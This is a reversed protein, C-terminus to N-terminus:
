KILKKKFISQIEEKSNKETVGAINMNRAIKLLTEKEYRVLQKGDIKVGGGPSLSFKYNKGKFKSINNNTIGFLTRIHSPINIGHKNYAEVVLKKSTGPLIKYWKPKGQKNPRVYHGSKSQNNFGSPKGKSPSKPKVALIQNNTIGLVSKVHNPIAVKANMYARIVKTRVLSKNTPIEYFRPKGNPGPRVYSGNRRANWNPALNYRSEIMAKRRNEATVKGAPANRKNKFVSIGSTHVAKILKKFAKPGDAPDICSAVITGNEFINLKVQPDKFTVGVKKKFGKASPAVPAPVLGFQWAPNKVTSEKELFEIDGANVLMNSKNQIYSYIDKVDILQNCYFRSLKTTKSANKILISFKGKGPKGPEEPFYEKALIRALREWPGNTSILVKGTKYVLVSATQEPDLMVINIKVYAVTSDIKGVPATSVTERFYPRGGIHQHGSVEVVTYKSTSPLKALDALKVTEGVSTTTSTWVVVPKTLAYSQEQNIYVNGKRVAFVKRLAAKHAAYKNVVQKPPSPAKKNPSPTPSRTNQVWPINSIKPLWSYSM